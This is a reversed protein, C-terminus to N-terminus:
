RRAALTAANENLGLRAFRGQVETQWAPLDQGTPAATGGVGTPTGAGGAERISAIYAREAEVHRTIAANLASTDVDGADTTPVQATVSETIRALTPQPLDAAALATTCVTRAAEVNRMRRVEGAATDREVTLSANQAELATIRATAERLQAEAIQARAEQSLGAPDAVTAAGATGPGPGTETGSMDPEGETPNPATPAAGDTVHDEGTDAPATTPAAEAMPQQEAAPPADHLGRTFLQPQDTEIRATWARLGDGVAASLAIREDRTLRGDGYLEDAFQTLTLHLRSELWAGVTGAEALRGTRASEMLALVKGGRGAKTVYDVSVAETIERVIPGRRGEAEGMEAVGDARISLGVHEHLSALLDRYHPLVDVTAVLADRGVDYRADEALHAALDRVSREPRDHEEAAGPHDLFMPTGARFVKATATERLVQPSYYGSSGWGPTIIQVFQRGAAATTFGGTEALAVRVPAAAEAVSTVAEPPDEDLQRYAAALAKAAAKKQAPTGDTQSLRAAAAHVGNRNLAGSPERVPLKCQGKSEADGEHTHLLCAKHWQGIDYDAQTFESWPRNSVAEALPPNAVATASERLRALVAASRGVYVPQALMPRPPAPQRRIRRKSM